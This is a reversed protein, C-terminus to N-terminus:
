SPKGYFYYTAKYPIRAEVGAQTRACGEPPALGGWTYVRQISQTRGFVGTGWNSKANILLWQIADPNPANARAKLEGVVKSGDRDSEWTPGDYHRGLRNGNSDFLIAEPEKLVWEFRRPDDESAKCQYIQVGSARTELLLQQSEPTQLNRPIVSPTSCGALLGAALMAPLLAFREEM